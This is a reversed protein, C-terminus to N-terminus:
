KKNLPIYMNEKTNFPQPFVFKISEVDTKTYIKNNVINREYYSNFDAV